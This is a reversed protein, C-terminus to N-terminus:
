GPWISKLLAALRYGGKALQIRIRPRSREDYGAPQEIRWRHPFGRAEDPGLYVTLRIDQHAERAHVLADNTWREPWADPDGTDKWEAPVPLEKVLRAAYTAVDDRGM